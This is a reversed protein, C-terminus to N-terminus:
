LYVYWGAAQPVDCYGDIIDKSSPDFCQDALLEWRTSVHERPRTSSISTGSDSRSDIEKSDLSSLEM